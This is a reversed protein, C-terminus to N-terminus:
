YQFVNVVGSTGSAHGYLAGNFGELEVRDKIADEIIVDGATNEYYMFTNAELTKPQLVLKVRSAPVKFWYVSNLANTGDAATLGTEPITIPRVATTTYVYTNTISGTIYTNTTVTTVNTCTVGANAAIIVTDGSRRIAGMVVSELAARPQIRSLGASYNAVPPAIMTNTEGTKLSIEWAFAGTAVSAALALMTLMKM